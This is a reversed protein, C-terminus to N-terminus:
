PLSTLFQLTNVQDAYDWLEPCQAKGFPVTAPTGNGVICQIKDGAITLKETLENKDKYYEYYVVSIPSVMKSNEQLMVFGNDLFAVGNILMISKQYDYNNCYKHHHIVPQYPEWSKFLTDFTYGEPVYLKSINRCGLGFYSFVDIGLTHLTETKEHGTLIAVSTRNKRIINPYKGFYYDFYRASNDSGTAIVADFNKLQEAFEVKSRFSPELEFLKNLIYKLLVSDKSSLKILASHGCILVSLLDHFGVLPINGAMVLAVKKSETPIIYPATWQELKDKQLFEVIGDLAMRVNDKTFWPNERAAQEALSQFDTFNLGKLSQGLASFANIRVHVNM